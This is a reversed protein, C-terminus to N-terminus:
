SCVHAPTMCGKWAPAALQPPPRHWFVHQCPQPGKDHVVSNSWCHLALHSLARGPTHTLRSTRDTVEHAAQSYEGRYDEGYLLQALNSCWVFILSELCPQWPSWAPQHTCITSVSCLLPKTAVRSSCYRPLEPLNLHSCKAFGLM